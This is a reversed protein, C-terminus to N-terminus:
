VILSYNPTMALSALCDPGEPNSRRKKYRAIVILPHVSGAWLAGSRLVADRRDDNRRHAPRDGTWADIGLARSRLRVMTRWPAPRARDTSPFRPLVAARRAM